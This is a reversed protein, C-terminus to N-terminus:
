KKEKHCCIEAGCNFIFPKGAKQKKLMTPVRYLILMFTMTFGLTILFITIMMRITIMM